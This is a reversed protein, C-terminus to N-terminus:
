QTIDGKVTIREPNRPNVGLIISGDEVCYVCKCSQCVCTELEVLGSLDDSLECGVYGQSLEVMSGCESCPFEIGIKINISVSDSGTYIGSSLMRKAYAEQRHLAKIQDPNGFVLPQGDITNKSNM